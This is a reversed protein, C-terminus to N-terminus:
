DQEEMLEIFVGCLDKPHFIATKQSNDRFERGLLRIGQSEMDKVAEEIDPVKLVVMSVGEGRRELTGASSGDPTLPAVLNIGFSSEVVRVDLAKQENPEGFEIGFLSSYLKKAKELDKVLISIHHIKQAKM